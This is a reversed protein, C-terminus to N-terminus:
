TGMLQPLSHCPLPSIPSIAAKSTPVHTCCDGKPTCPLCGSQCTQNLKCLDLETELTARWPAQLVITGDGLMTSERGICMWNYSKFKMDGPDLTASHGPIECDWAGPPGVGHRLLQLVYALNYASHEKNLCFHSPSPLGYASFHFSPPTSAM